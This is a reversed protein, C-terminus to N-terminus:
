ILVLHSITGYSMNEQESGNNTGLKILITCLDGAATLLQNQIQKNRPLALLCMM